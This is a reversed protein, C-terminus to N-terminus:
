AIYQLTQTNDRIEKKEKIVFRADQRNELEWFCSVEQSKLLRAGGRKKTCSSKSVMTQLNMQWIFKGFISDGSFFLFNCHQPRKCKGMLTSNIENTKLFFILIVFMLARGGGLFHGNLNLTEKRSQMFTVSYSDPLRYLFHWPFWPGAWRASNALICDM